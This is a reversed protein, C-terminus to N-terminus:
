VPHDESTQYIWCKMRNCEGKRYLYAKSGNSLHMKASYSEETRINLFKTYQNEHYELLLRQWKQDKKRRNSLNDM